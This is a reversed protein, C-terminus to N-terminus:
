QTVGAENRKGIQTRDIKGLQGHVAGETIAYELQIQGQTMEDGERGRGKVSPVSGRQRPRGRWSPHGEEVMACTPQSKVEWLM